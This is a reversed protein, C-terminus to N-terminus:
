MEGEHIGFNEMTFLRGDYIRFYESTNHHPLEQEELVRYCRYHPNSYVLEFYILSNPQFHFKFAACNKSIELNHTRYRITEPGRALLVDAQYIYYEAKYKRCFSHFHAEDKFLSYEFDKIKKTINKAEFKPHLLIPRDTYAGISPGYAFTTLIPSDKPTNYRIYKIIGLLYNRDPSVSKPFGRLLLGFNVLICFFVILQFIKKELKLMRGIQFSLFWVFFADLRIFLLYLPFFVITFYLLFSDIVNMNKRLFTKVAIFLTIIGLALLTGIYNFINNLSPGTFPSVWMVLTEWSCKTPDTPRVGFYKIKDWILGYVFRYEPIRVFSLYITVFISASFLFLFALNRQRELKKPMLSSIVLSYSLLMCFSAIFGASRMTPIALGAFINVATLIYFPVLNFNKVFLFCLIIFVVFITYYFQTLHWSALAAFLFSASLFAYTSISGRIEKMARIFFYLHTFILPLTFDQLEYGPAVVTIYIAPTVAYMTAGVLGAIKKNCLLNISHYLPFISLSSYVAVFILLFIHFPITKPILFRYTYGTIIEMLVTLRGKIDLGEPHQTKLDLAPLSGHTAVLKATRYQLASETWFLATDDRPSYFTRSFTFYLKMGVMFSFILILFFKTKM